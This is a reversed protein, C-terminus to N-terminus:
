SVDLAVAEVRRPASSPGALAAAVRDLLTTKEIEWNFRTQALRFAARRADALMSPDGLLIDMAAALAETSDVAYLRVASGAEAAFDRHAPIDSLLVPLGALISTFLKNNLAIRRNLTHGTESSLGVDYGSALRVMERPSESALIHLRDAANVSSAISRLREVFGAAPSGRLYLHPRTRARGIALVAVELGRDPGITQSFWYISSGPAVTGAATPAAPAEARPFVNLVVTPRVIDYAGAYADAIGPSAATIYACNPLHRGEVARLLRRQPEYQLTDPWDGLHFDEADYAYRARHMQAAIVAAPLAAPYHAIYLDAAVATAASILRPTFPSISRDAFRGFGTASFAMEELLQAVRCMRWGTGRQRFDLRKAHWAANALLVEDGRDVFDLTRVAIATVEHGSEALASAEKVVRPNSALAGPSVICIRM